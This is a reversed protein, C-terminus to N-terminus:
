PLILIRDRWTPGLSAAPRRSLKTHKNHELVVCYGTNHCAFLTRKRQPRNCAAPLAQEQSRAIASIHASQPPPQAAHHHAQLQAPSRFPSSLRTSSLLALCSALYATLSLCLCLCLACARRDSKAAKSAAAPALATHPRIRVPFAFAEGSNIFLQGAWVSRASRRRTRLLLSLLLGNVVSLCQSQCM